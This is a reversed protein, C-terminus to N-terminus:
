ATRGGAQQDWSFVSSWVELRYQSLHTTCNNGFWQPACVTCNRGWWHGRPGDHFCSCLGEKLCGHDTCAANATCNAWPHVSATFTPTPTGTHLGLGFYLAQPASPVGLVVVALAWDGGDEEAKSVNCVVTTPTSAHVPCSPASGTSSHPAPRDPLALARIANSAPDVGDFNRGAFVLTDGDACGTPQCGTVASLIPPPLPVTVFAGPIRVENVGARRTLWAAGGPGGRPGPPPVPVAVFAGPIRVQEVGVRLAVRWGGGTGPPVVLACEYQSDYVSLGRCRPPGGAGGAFVAQVASLNTGLQKGHFVLREGAQCVPLRGGCGTVNAVSPGAVVVVRLANGATEDGAGVTVFWTGRTEPDRALLRCTAAGIGRSGGTVLAVKTM